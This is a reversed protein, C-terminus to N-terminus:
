LTDVKGVGDEVLGKELCTQNDWADQLVLKLVEESVGPISLHTTYSTYPLCLICADKQISSIFHKEATFGPDHSKRLSPPGQLSGRLSSCDTGERSSM